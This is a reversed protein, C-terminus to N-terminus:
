CCFHTHFWCSFPLANTTFSPPKRSISSHPRKKKKWSVFYKPHDIDDEDPLTRSSGYYDRGGGDALIGWVKHEGEGDDNTMSLCDCEMKMGNDGGLRVGEGNNATATAMATAATTTTPPPLEDGDEESGGGGKRNAHGAKGGRRGGNCERSRSGVVCDNMPDDNRGNM